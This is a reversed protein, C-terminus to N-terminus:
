AQGPDESGSDPLRRPGGPPRPPGPHGLANAVLWGLVAGGAVLAVGLLVQVWGPPRLAFTVLFVLILSGTIAALGV